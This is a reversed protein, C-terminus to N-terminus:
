TSTPYLNIVSPHNRDRIVTRETRDLHATRWEPRGALTVGPTCPVGHSEIDGRRDCSATCDCIDLWRTDNPYHATRVANINHQKMLRADELMVEVPVAQGWDPYFEHRNVGKLKIPVGNVLLREGHVEVARFGFNCRASHICAGAEDSLELLVTYPEPTEATWKRPNAIDDRM